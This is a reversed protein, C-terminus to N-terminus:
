TKRRMDCGSSGKRQTVFDDDSNQQSMHQPLSSVAPALSIDSASAAGPAPLIVTVPVDPSLAFIDSVSQLSLSKTRSPEDRFVKNHIDEDKNLEHSLIETSDSGTLTGLIGKILKCKYWYILWQKWYFRLKCTDNLDAKSRLILGFDVTSSSMACSILNLMPKPIIIKSDTKSIFADPSGTVISQVIWELFSREVWIDASKSRKQHLSSM